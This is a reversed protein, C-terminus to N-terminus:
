DVMAPPRSWPTGSWGSTDASVRAGSALLLIAIELDGKAAAISLPSPSRPNVANPDLGGPWELLLSILRLNKTECALALASKYTYNDPPNSNAGHSLLLEVLELCNLSDYQCAMELANHGTTKNDFLDSHQLRANPKAGHHLLLKVVGRIDKADTGLESPAMAVQRVALHLPYDVIFKDTMRMCSRWYAVPSDLHAGAELLAATMGLDPKKHCLVVHLPPASCNSTYDSNPDAGYELLLKVVEHNGYMQPFAEGAGCALKLPTLACGSAASHVLVSAGRRLLEEVIATNGVRVAAQLPTDTKRNKGGGNVDIKTHLVRSIFELSPHLSIFFSLPHIDSTFNRCDQFSESEHPSFIPVDKDILFRLIGAKISNAENTLHRVEQKPNEPVQMSPFMIGYISTGSCDMENDILCQLQEDEVWCQPSWLSPRCTHIDARLSILFTLTEASAPGSGRVIRPLAVDVAMAASLLLISYRTNWVAIEKNVDVCYQSRLASIAAHNNSRAAAVMMVARDMETSANSNDLLCSLTDVYCSRICAEILRDQIGSGKHNRLIHSAIERSLPTLPQDQFMDELFTRRLTEDRNGLLKPNFGAGIMAAVARLKCKRLCWLLSADQLASRSVNPPIFATGLYSQLKQIGEEANSIIGFVTLRRESTPNTFFPRFLRDLDSHGALLAQDLLTEVRSYSSILSCPSAHYLAAGLLYEDERLELFLGDIDSGRRLLIKMVEIRPGRDLNDRLLAMLLHGAATYGECRYNVDAGGALLAEVSKINGRTAAEILPSSFSDMLGPCHPVRFLRQQNPSVRQTMLLKCIDDCDHWAAVLLLWIGHEEVWQVDQLLALALSRFFVQDGQDGVECTWRLFELRAWRVSQHQMFAKLYSPPINLMIYKILRSRNWLVVFYEQSHDWPNNWKNNALNYMAIGLAHLSEFSTSSQLDLGYPLEDGLHSMTSSLSLVAADRRELEIELSPPMWTSGHGVSPCPFPSAPDTAFGRLTTQLLVTPLKDLLPSWLRVFRENLIPIEFAPSSLNAASTLIQFTEDVKIPNPLMAINSYESDSIHPVATSAHSPSAVTRGFSPGDDGSPNDVRHSPLGIEYTTDSLLVDSPSPPPTEISVDKSLPLNERAKAGWQKLYRATEKVVKRPPILTGCLYVASRRHGRSALQQHVAIWDRAKMNKRLGLYDRLKTEYTSLPVVPFGHQNEMIDKVEKLSKKKEQFLQRLLHHYQGWPPQPQALQSKSPDM